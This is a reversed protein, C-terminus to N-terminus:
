EFRAQGVSLRPDDDGAGDIPLGLIIGMATALWFPPPPWVVVAGLRAVAGAAVPGGAGGISGSGWALAEVPSPMGWVKRSRDLSSSSVPWFLRSSTTTDVRTGRRSITGALTSRDPASISSM